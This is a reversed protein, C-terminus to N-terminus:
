HENKVLALGRDRGRIRGLRPISVLIFVLGKKVEDKLRKMLPTKLNDVQNYADTNEPVNNM